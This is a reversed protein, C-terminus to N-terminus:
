LLGKLYLSQMHTAKSSLPISKIYAHFTSLEFPLNRKTHIAKVAQAYKRESYTASPTHSIVHFYIGSDLDSKLLAQKFKIDKIPKFKFRFLIPKM